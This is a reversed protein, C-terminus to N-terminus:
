NISEFIVFSHFGIQAYRAQKVGLLLADLNFITTMSNEALFVKIPCM